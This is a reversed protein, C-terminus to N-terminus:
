LVGVSLGDFNIKQNEAPLTRKGKWENLRM